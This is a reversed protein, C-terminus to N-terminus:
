LKNSAIRPHEGKLDIGNPYADPIGFWCKLQDYNIEQEEELRMIYKFPNILLSPLLDIIQEDTVNSKFEFYDDINEFDKEILDADWPLHYHCEKALVYIISELDHKPSSHSPFVENEQDVFIFNCCIKFFLTFIRVM